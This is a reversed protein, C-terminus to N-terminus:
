LRYNRIRFHTVTQYFKIIHPQKCYEQTLDSRFTIQIIDLIANVEATSECNTITDWHLRCHEFFKIRSEASNIDLEFNLYYVQTAAASTNRHNRAVASNRNRSRRARGAPREVSPPNNAPVTEAAPSSM